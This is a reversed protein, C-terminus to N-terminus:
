SEREMRQLEPAIRDWQTLFKETLRCLAWAHDPHHDSSPALRQIIEAIAGDDVIWVRGYGQHYIPIRHLTYREDFPAGPPVKRDLHSSPVFIAFLHRDHWGDVRLEADVIPHYHAPIGGEHLAALFHMERLSSQWAIGARWRMADQAIAHTLGARKALAVMPSVWLQPEAILWSWFDRFTPLTGIASWCAHWLMSLPWETHGDRIVPHDASKPIQGLAHESAAITALVDARDPALWLYGWAWAVKRQDGRTSWARLRDEQGAGRAFDWVDHASTM